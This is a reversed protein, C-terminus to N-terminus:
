RVRAICPPDRFLENGMVQEVFDLYEDIAPFLCRCDKFFDYTSLLKNIPNRVLLFIYSESQEIVSKIYSGGSKPVHVFIVDTYTNKFDRYIPM